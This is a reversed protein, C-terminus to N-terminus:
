LLSLSVSLQQCRLGFDERAGHPKLRVLAPTRLMQRWPAVRRRHSSVKSNWRSSDNSEM